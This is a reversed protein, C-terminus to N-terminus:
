DSDCNRRGPMSTKMRASDDYSLSGGGGGSGGATWQPPNNFGTPGSSRAFRPSSSSQPLPLAFNTTRRQRLGPPPTSLDSRRLGPRPPATSLSSTDSSNLDLSPSASPPSSKHLASMYRDCDPIMQPDTVSSRRNRDPYNSYGNSLYLFPMLGLSLSRMEHLHIAGNQLIRTLVLSRQQVIGLQEQMIERKVDILADIPEIYHLYDPLQAAVGSLATLQQEYEDNKRQLADEASRMEHYWFSALRLSVIAKSRGDNPNYARTSSIWRSLRDRYGKSHKAMVTQVTDAWDTATLPLSSPLSTISLGSDTTSQPPIYRRSECTSRRGTKM